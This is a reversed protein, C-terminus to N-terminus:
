EWDRYSYTAAATETTCLVTNKNAICLDQYTDLATYGQDTHSGIYFCNDRPIISNVGITASGIVGSTAVNNNFGIYCNYFGGAQNSGNSAGVACSFANASSNNLNDSGLITLRNGDSAFRLNDSGFISFSNLVLGNSAGVMTAKGTGSLTAASNAGIIVSDQTNVQFGTNGIGYGIVVNNRYYEGNCIQGGGIMVNRGSAYTANMMCNHGILVNDNSDAGVGQDTISMGASDGIAVNRKIFNYSPTTSSGRLTNAGFCINYSDTVTTTQYQLAQSGIRLSNTTSHRPIVYGM